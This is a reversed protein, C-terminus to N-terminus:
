WLSLEYTVDFTVLEKNASIEQFAAAHKDLDIQNGSDDFWWANETPLGGESTWAVGFSEADRASAVNVTAELKDYKGSEVYVILNRMIQEDPNLVTDVLLRGGAILEPDKEIASLSEFRRSDAANITEAFRKYFGTEGGTSNNVKIGHVAFRSTLINIPRSGPNKASVKLQVPILKLLDSPRGPYDQAIRSLELDVSINVPAVQPLYIEKYLFEYGAWAGAFVIGLTQVWTNITKGLTQQEGM